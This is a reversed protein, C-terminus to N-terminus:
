GDVVHGARELASVAKEVMDDKVLIYDTDYTSMAFVSIKADKLATTIDSLIGLQDFSLTGEIKLARWGDELKDYGDLAETPGVLSCEDKTITLSWLGGRFITKVYFARAVNEDNYQAVGHIEPLISFTLSTM